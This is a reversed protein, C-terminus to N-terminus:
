ISSDLRVRRRPLEWGDRGARLDFTVGKGAFPRNDHHHPRLGLWTKASGAMRHVLFDKCWDWRHGPVFLPGPQDYVEEFPFALRDRATWDDYSTGDGTARTRTSLWSEPDTPSSREYGQPRKRDPSVIDLEKFTVPETSHGFHLAVSDPTGGYSIEDLYFYIRNLFGSNFYGRKGQQVFLGRDRLYAELDSRAMPHYAISTRYFPSFCSAQNRLTPVIGSNRRWLDDWLVFWWQHIQSRGIAQKREQLYTLSGRHTSALQRIKPSKEQNQVVQDIDELSLSDETGVDFLFSHSLTGQKWEDMQRFHDRHKQLAGEVRPLGAEIVDRNRRLLKAAAPSLSFDPPIGLAEVDLTLHEDYRLAGMSDQGQGDAYSITVRFGSAYPYGRWTVDSNRSIRLVGTRYHIRSEIQLGDRIGVLRTESYPAFVVQGELARLALRVRRRELIAPSGNQHILDELDSLGTLHIPNTPDEDYRFVCVFPFSVVDVRGFFSRVVAPPYHRPNWIIDPGTFFKQIEQRVQLLRKSDSARSRDLEKHYPVLGCSRLIRLDEIHREAQTGKFDLLQPPLGPEDTFSLKQPGPMKYEPSALLIVSLTEQWVRRSVHKPLDLRPSFLDISFDLRYQLRQVIAQVLDVGVLTFYINFLYTIIEVIILVAGGLASEGQVNLAVLLGILAIAVFSIRSVRDSNNQVYNLFPKSITDAILFLAMFALLSSERIVGLSSTTHGRFICNNKTILCILLINVLKVLMYIAKFHAWARRYDRYLFSFVSKDEDLLRMYEGTQDRRLEGLETYKDVKPAEARVVQYLRWPLFFTLWVVTSMAVPLVVWAWNFNKLGEPRKMTTRYCFDSAGYYVKPDGLTMFVPSDVTLYPNVVVWFDSTWALAGIAVKSLPLYLSTALFTITIKYGRSNRIRPIFHRETSDAEFDRGEGTSKTTPASSFRGTFRWLEYVAFLAIGTFIWLWVLAMGFASVFDLSIIAPLTVFVKKSWGTTVLSSASGSMILSVMQMIDRFSEVTQLSIGSSSGEGAIISDTLTSMLSSLTVIPRAKWRNLKLDTVTLGTPLLHMPPFILLREDAAATGRNAEKGQKEVDVYKGGGKGSGVVSKWMRSFAGDRPGLCWEKWSQMEEESLVDQPRSFETVPLSKLQADLAPLVLPAADHTFIVAAPLNLTTRVSTLSRHLSPRSPKSHSYESPDSGTSAYSVRPIMPPPSLLPLSQGSPYISSLPSPEEASPVAKRAVKPPPFASPTVPTPPSTISFPAEAPSLKSEDAVLSALFLSMPGPPSEVATEAVSKSPQPASSLDSTPVSAINAVKELAFHIIEKSEKVESANGEEPNVQKIEREGDKESVEKATSGPTSTNPAVAVKPPQVAHIPQPSSSSSPKSLDPVNKTIAFSTQGGNSASTVNAPVVVTKAPQGATSVPQPPRPAIRVPKFADKVISTPRQSTQLTPKTHPAAATPPGKSDVPSTRARETWDMTSLSGRAEGAEVKPPQRQTTAANEADTIDPGAPSSSFKRVQTSVTGSRVIKPASSKPIFLSKTEGKLLTSSSTSAPTLTPAPTPSANAPASTSPSVIRSRPTPRPAPPDTVPAEFFSVLHSVKRPPPAM